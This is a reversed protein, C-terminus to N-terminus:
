RVLKDGRPEGRPLALAGAVDCNMYPFILKQLEVNATERCPHLIDEDIWDSSGFNFGFLLGKLIGCDCHERYPQCFYLVAKKVDEVRDSLNLYPYLSQFASHLPLGYGSELIVKGLSAPSLKSSSHYLAVVPGSPKCLDGIWGLEFFHTHEDTFSMVPSDDIPHYVSSHPLLLDPIDPHCKDRSLTCRYAEFLPTGHSADCYYTQSRLLLLKILHIKGAAVAGGLATGFKSPVHVPTRPLLFRVWETMDIGLMMRNRVYSHLVGAGTRDVARVDCYPHLLEFADTSTVSFMITAGNTDRITDVAVRHPGEEGVKLCFERLLISLLSLHNGQVAKYLVSRKLDKERMINRFTGPIAESWDIKADHYRACFEDLGVAGDLREFKELYMLPTIGFADKKEVADSISLDKLIVKNEYLVAVHALTRGFEDLRHMDEATPRSPLPFVNSNVIASHLPHSFTAFGDLFKAVSSFNGGRAYIDLVLTRLDETDKRSKKINEFLFHAALFEAFTKHIFVPTGNQIIDILGSGLYNRSVEKMLRGDPKLAELDSETLVRERFRQESFIINAAVLGLDAYFRERLLENAYKTATTANGIDVQIKEQMHLKHKYDVLRRYLDFTNGIKRVYIEFPEQSYDQEMDVITRIFLPNALPTPNRLSDWLSTGCTFFFHLSFMTLRDAARARLEDDPVSTSSKTRLYKALCEISECLSFSALELPRVPTLDRLIDKFVPRTFIIIKSVQTQSLWAVLKLIGDRSDEVIEDFADFIIFVEFPFRRRVSQEFWVFELGEVKVGCLFALNKLYQVETQLNIDGVKRPLDVHLVWRRSVEKKLKGCLRTALVSKGIGPAGCIVVVKRLSRVVSDEDTYASETIPLRHLPGNSKILAFRDFAVYYRLLHVTKNHFYPREKLLEYDDIDDILVYRQFHDLTKGHHVERVSPLIRMIVEESCEYFVFVEDRMRFEIASLDIWFAGTELRRTVYCDGIDNRLERLSPGVDIYRFKCLKLFATTDVLEVFRHLPAVDEFKVHFEKGQFRVHSRQAVKDKCGQTINDFRAEQVYKVHLRTDFYDVRKVREIIYEKSEEQAVLLVTTGVVYSVRGLFILAREFADVHEPREFVVVVFNCKYDILVDDLADDWQSADLFLYPQGTSKVADHVLIELLQLDSATLMLRPGGGSVVQMLSNKKFTVRLADTAFAKGLRDNASRIEEADKGPCVNQLYQVVDPIVADLFYQYLEMAQEELVGPGGRLVLIHPVRVILEEETHRPFALCLIRDLKRGHEQVQKEMRKVIGQYRMKKDDDHAFYPKGGNRYVLHLALHCLEHALTGAVEADADGSTSCPDAVAKAAIFIEEKDRDTIGLDYRGGGGMMCQVDGREFDYRIKLHQSTAAAKLINVLLEIGNLKQLLHDVKTGFSEHNSLCQSKSKLYHIYSDPYRTVFYQQRQLESKQLFDLSDLCKRETENMFDCKHSLLLGYIFFSDKEIARHLASETNDPRLWLKLHPASQLCHQVQICDREDIAKHMKKRIDKWEPSKEEDMIPNDQPSAAM